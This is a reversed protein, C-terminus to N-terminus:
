RIEDRRPALMQDPYQRLSTSLHQLLSRLDDAVGRLLQRHVHETVDRRAVPAGRAIARDRQREHGAASRQEAALDVRGRGGAEGFCPYARRDKEIALSLADM